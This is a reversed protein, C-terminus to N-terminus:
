ELVRELVNGWNYFDSLYISGAQGMLTTVYCKGNLGDVQSILFKDGPNIFINPAIRWQHRRTIWIEGPRPQIM